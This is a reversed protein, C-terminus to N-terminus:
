QYIIYPYPWNLVNEFYQALNLSKMFTNINFDTKLQSANCIDTVKKACQKYNNIAEEGEGVPSYAYIVNFALHKCMVGKAQLLHLIRILYEKIDWDVFSPLSNRDAADFLFVYSVTVSFAEGPDLAAFCAQTCNASIFAEPTHSRIINNILELKRSRDYTELDFMTGPLPTFDYMMSTVEDSASLQVVRTWYYNTPFYIKLKKSKDTSVTSVLALSGRELVGKTQQWSANLFVPMGSEDLNDTYFGSYEIDKNAVGIFCKEALSLRSRLEYLLSYVYDNDISETSSMILNSILTENM